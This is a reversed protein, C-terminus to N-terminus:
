DNIYNFVISRCFYFTLKTFSKIRQIFDAFNLLLFLTLINYQVFSRNYKGKVDLTTYQTEGVRQPGNIKLHRILKVSTFIIM